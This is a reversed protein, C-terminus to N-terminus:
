QPIRFGSPMRQCPFKRILPIFAAHKSMQCCRSAKSAKPTRPHDGPVMARQQIAL